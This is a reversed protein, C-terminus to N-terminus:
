QGAEMGIRGAEAAILDRKALKGVPTHPLSARVELSAPMEHRGLKDALFARLDDLTLAAAGARLVVFAKAAQGRYPDPVGIVAAEQIAPHEALINEIEAPYINEGGSLIMDKLRGIIYIFGDATIRALDGTRCWGDVFTEATAEPNGWYVGCVSPSRTWLEGDSDPPLEDLTVPDVVKVETLPIPRGVSTRHDDLRDPDMVSTMAGGETLGYAQEMRVQPFRLRMKDVAWGLIPSGGTVVRGLHSLDVEDLESWAMLQYIIAPLLFVDTCRHHALVEVIRDVTLSTSRMIVAHGGRMLVPLVCDEFGSVHFMPTTALHVSTDDYQWYLAQVAGFWLTQGHTWLAGKPFGTTGSTYMIMNPDAEVPDPVAPERPDANELVAQVAAGPLTAADLDPELVFVITKEVPTEVLIPEITPVFRGHLCLLTTGSDTLVYGLEPGTLRWNLRVAIAGIRTVALYLAWYELCNSLLMGVRDGPRVGQELLGNAFRNAREALEGYTWTQGTELSLAPRQAGGGRAPQLLNRTVIGTFM